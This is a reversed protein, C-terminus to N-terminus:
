PVVEAPIRQTDRNVPGSVPELIEDNQGAPIAPDNANDAPAGEAPLEFELVQQPTVANQNGQNAQNNAPPAANAGAPREEKISSASATQKVDPLAFLWISFAASNQANIRGNVVNCSRDLNKAMKGLGKLVDDQKRLCSAVPDISVRSGARAGEDASARLVGLGFQIAVLNTIFILLLFSTGIIAMIEITALGDDSALM